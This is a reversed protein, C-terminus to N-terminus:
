CFDSTPAVLWSVALCDAWIFSVFVPPALCLDVEVDEDQEEDDPEPEPEERDDDLNAPLFRLDRRFPLFSFGSDGGGAAMMMGGLTALDSDLFDLDLLAALEDPPTPWSNLELAM